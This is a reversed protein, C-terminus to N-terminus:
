YATNMIVRVVAGAHNVGPMEYTKEQTGPIAVNEPKTETLVEGTSANRIQLRIQVLATNGTRNKLTVRVRGRDRDEASIALVDVESCVKGESCYVEHGGVKIVESGAIARAMGTQARKMGTCSTVMMAMVSLVVLAIMRKM